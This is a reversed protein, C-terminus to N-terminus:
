IEIEHPEEITYYAKNTDGRSFVYQRCQEKTGSFRHESIGSCFRYVNYIIQKM